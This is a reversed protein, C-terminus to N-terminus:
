LFACKGESPCEGLYQTCLSNDECIGFFTGPSTSDVPMVNPWFSIGTHAWQVNVEQVVKDLQKELEAQSSYPGCFTGPKCYPFIRIEYTGATVPHPGPHAMTEICTAVVVVAAVTLAFSVFSKTSM